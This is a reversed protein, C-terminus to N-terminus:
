YDSNCYSELRTACPAFALHREFAKTLPTRGLPMTFTLM